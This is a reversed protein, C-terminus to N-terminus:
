AKLAIAAGRCVAPSEPLPWAGGAVFSLKLGVRQAPRGAAEADLVGMRFGPTTITWPWSVVKNKGDSALRSRGPSRVGGMQLQRGKPDAACPVHSRMMDHWRSVTVSWRPGSHNPITAAAATQLSPLGRRLVRSMDRTGAHRGTDLCCSMLGARRTRQRAM